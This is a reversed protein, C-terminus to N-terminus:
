KASPNTSQNTKGCNVKGARCYRADNAQPRIACVDVLELSFDSPSDLLRVDFGSELLFLVSEDGNGVDVGRCALQRTVRQM